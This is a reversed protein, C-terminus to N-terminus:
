VEDQDFFRMAVKPSEEQPETLVEQPKPILKERAVAVVRQIDKLAIEFAALKKDCYDVAEHKIKRARQEAEGIINQAAIKAQRMIESRQVMREAQSRAQEIISEAENKASQILEDRESLIWKADKLEEPLKELAENLLSLLEEKPIVVSQSLPLSRANEIMLIANELNSRLTLEDADSM